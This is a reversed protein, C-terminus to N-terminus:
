KLLLRAATSPALWAFFGGSPHDSPKKQAVRLRAAVIRNVSRSNSQAVHKACVLKKVSSKV